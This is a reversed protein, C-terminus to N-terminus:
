LKEKIGEKMKNVIRQVYFEKYDDPLASLHKLAKDALQLAHTAPVLDKNGYTDKKDYVGVDLHRWFMNVAIGPDVSTVNHFWLAPIYLIDGPELYCEYKTALQFNPFRDLDPDDIDIVASKDGILYMYSIDKPSFLVVKKRGHIQILINDMIDYHTWLQVGASALRFVSSFFNEAPFFQPVKVDCALSPYDKGIDAVDKRPNGGLSRLYYFEDESLFWSNKRRPYFIREILEDLTVSKYAFNKNIFDLRPSTSVHVRVEKDKTNEVLFEPTWKELCPGVDVAKLLAPLRKSCICNRFMEIDVNEYIEVM